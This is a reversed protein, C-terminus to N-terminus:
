TRSPGANWGSALGSWRGALRPTARFARGANARQFSFAGCFIDPSSQTEGASPSKCRFFNKLFRLLGPWYDPSSGCTPGSFLSSFIAHRVDLGGSKAAISHPGGDTCAFAFSGRRLSPRYFGPAVPTDGTLLASLVHGRIPKCAAWPIPLQQRHPTRTGAECQCSALPPLRPWGARGEVRQTEAGRRSIGLTM